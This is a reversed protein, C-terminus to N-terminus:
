SSEYRRRKSMKSSSKSGISQWDPLVGRGHCTRCRTYLPISLRIINRHRGKSRWYIPISIQSFGAGDCRPCGFLSITDDTIM